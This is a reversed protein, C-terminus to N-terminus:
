FIVIVRIILMILICINFLGTPTDRRLEEGVFKDIKDYTSHLQSTIKNNRETSEVTQRELKYNMESCNNRVISRQEEM